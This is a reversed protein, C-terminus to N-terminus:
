EVWTRSPLHDVIFAFATLAWAEVRRVLKM